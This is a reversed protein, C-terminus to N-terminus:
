VSLFQKSGERLSPGAIDSTKMMVKGADDCVNEGDPFTAAGCSGAMPAAVPVPDDPGDVERKRWKM